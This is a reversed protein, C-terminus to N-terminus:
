LHWPLQQSLSQSGLNLGAHLCCTGQDAGQDEERWLDARGFPLCSMPYGQRWECDDERPQKPRQLEESSISGIPGLWNASVLPAVWLCLHLGLCACDAMATSLETELLSFCATVFQGVGIRPGLVLHSLLPRHSNVGSILGRRGKLWARRGALAPKAKFHFCRVWSQQKNLNYRDWFAMTQMLSFVNRGRM